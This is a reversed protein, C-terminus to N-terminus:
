PMYGTNKRWEPIPLSAAKALPKMWEIVAPPTPAEGIAWRQVLARSCGLRDALTTRLWGAQNLLKQLETM